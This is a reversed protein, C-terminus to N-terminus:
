LIGSRMNKTRERVKANADHSTRAWRDDSAFYGSSADFSKPNTTSHQASFPSLQNSRDTDRSQARERNVNFQQADNGKPTFHGPSNYETSWAPCNRLKTPKKVAQRDSGHFSQSTTLWSNKLLRATEGQSRASCEVAQSTRIPMHNSSNPGSWRYGAKKKPFGRYALQTSTQAPKWTLGCRDKTESLM